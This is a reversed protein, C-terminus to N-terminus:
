RKFIVNTGPPVKSTPVYGVAGPTAAIYKVVEDVSGLEKPSSGKGVYRRVLWYGTYQEENQEMVWQLFEDRAPAGAPLNIPVVSQQSISVIRGTYLRQLTVRDTKPVLAHAIVVIDDGAAWVMGSTLLFPM